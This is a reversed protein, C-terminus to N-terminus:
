PIPCQLHADREEVTCGCVVKLIPISIQRGENKDINHIYFAIILSSIGKTIVM